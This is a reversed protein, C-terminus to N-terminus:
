CAGGAPGATQGFDIGLIKSIIANTEQFLLGVAQRSDQFDKVIPHTQFLRQRDRLEEIEERRLTGAEQGRQFSQGRKRLEDLLTQVGPNTRFQREAAMYHSVLPTSKLAGIFAGTCKVVEALEDNGNPKM